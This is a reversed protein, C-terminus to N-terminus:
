TIQRWFLPSSNRFLTSLVNKIFPKFTFLRLVLAELPRALEVGELPWRELPSDDLGTVDLPSKLVVLVVGLAAADLVDAALSGAFAIPRRLVRKRISNPAGFFGCSFFADQTM